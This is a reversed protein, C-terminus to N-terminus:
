GEWFNYMEYVNRADETTYRLGVGLRPEGEPCEVLMERSEEVLLMYLRGDVRVWQDTIGVETKIKGILAALDAARRDIDDIFQTYYDKKTSYVTFDSWEISDGNPHTNAGTALSTPNGEADFIKVTTSATPTIRPDSTGIAEFIDVKQGAVASDLRERALLIKAAETGRVKKAFLGCGSFLVAVACLLAVVLVSAIVKKMIKVM